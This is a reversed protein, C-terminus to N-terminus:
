LVMKDKLCILYIRTQGRNKHRGGCFVIEGSFVLRFRDPQAQLLKYLGVRVVNFDDVLMLKILPM